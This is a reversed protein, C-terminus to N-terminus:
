FKIEMRKTCTHMLARADRLCHNVNSDGLFSLIQVKPEKEKDARRAVLCRILLGNKRQIFLLSLVSRAFGAENYVDSGEHLSLRHDQSTRFTKFADMGKSLSFPKYRFTNETQRSLLSFYLLMTDQRDGSRKGFNERYLDM